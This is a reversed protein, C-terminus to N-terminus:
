VLLITPLTLHTYSVSHDSTFDITEFLSEDRTPLGFEERFVNLVLQRGIERFIVADEYVRKKEDTDSAVPGHHLPLTPCMIIPRDDAPEDAKVFSATLALLLFMTLKTIPCLASFKQDISFRM